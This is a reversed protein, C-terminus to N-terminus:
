KKYQRIKVRENIYYNTDEYMEKSKLLGLSIM